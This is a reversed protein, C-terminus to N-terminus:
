KNRRHVLLLGRLTLEPDSQKICSVAETFLPALGGTAIVEVDDGHEARLRAVLGEILSVYGWYIGSQMAAVTDKGTVRETKKVDVRPLKAAAMHLAELSLNVGPAIVGGLYSGKADIIDFTTATGFDVVILPGGYRDFASVANVLRDAGVEDPRDVLVKLGLKLGPEGVVRPDCSFTNRCLTKLAFLTAPVVTAIIAATVDKPKLGAEAMLQKLSLGFEDATRNPSTSLRWEGRVKDNDDFVAFVTNTNGSDIALLM